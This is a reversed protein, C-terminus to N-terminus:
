SNLQKSALRKFTKDDPFNTIGIQAVQQAQQNLGLYEYSQALILLAGKVAPTRQYHEIVQIARNSAAVYAQRKYYFQAKEVISQAMLNRIYILRQHADHAYRSHPYHVVVHKLDLFSQQLGHLNRQAYDIPLHDSLFDHSQYFHALGRMYYVYGAYQSTPYLHLYRSAAAITQALDPKQYYAYVLDLQVLQAHKGFPYLAQLAQLKKIADRYSGNKLELQASKFLKQESQGKFQAGPNDSIQNDQACAALLLVSGIIMLFRVLRNTM